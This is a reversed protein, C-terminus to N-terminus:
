GKIVEDDLKWGIPTMEFTRLDLNYKFPTKVLSEVEIFLWADRDPNDWDEVVIDVRSVDHRKKARNFKARAESWTLDHITEWPDEGGKYVDVIFDGGETKYKKLREEFSM